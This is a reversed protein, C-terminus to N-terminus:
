YFDSGYLKRSLGTLDAWKMPGGKDAPFGIGWIAGTDISRPDTVIGKELLEKGVEVFPLFLMDRLENVTYDKPKAKAPILPLVEPDVSGDELFFGKGSKKRGLRGAKVVNEITQPARQGLSKTFVFHIVDIGVEDTLRIPGVPFGFGTMAEDIKEIPVGSELIEYTKVFYPFLMANVVFGPYDNCVVPRKKVAACFNLLNNITDEVTEEGRIVELLQMMWVPSFFHAGCFRGPKTVNKALETVPISSTNSAILCDDRVTNCLEKYVEAKLAPDEFVAEIVLDVDKFDDTWESVPKILDCLSDVSGKLRGKDAMGQLVKRIFEQGPGIAEPLDKVVVPVQMRRLIDIIIGRGMTGFGLMAIKKLPKPEFGKSIMGAPKDTYTKLFFTNISGKAEPTNAVDLFYKREIALAEELPAKLGEHISKLVLTHSPLERGRTAKLVTQRALDIISDLDSFDHRTRKLQVKGEILELVFEKARVLLDDKEPVVRDIMGLELAKAPPLTKGKLILEIAQYGILRPLRQTGGGGPFLGVNCEPLGILTRPSDTAMRATMALALEYGGGMCAGNIAALTPIGLNEMRFFDRHLRSIVKDTGESDNPDTITKLNAGAHFNSPKGSIFIIGKIVDKEKELSRITEGFDILAEDTWTNVAEGKVDFTVVALGDEIQYPFISTKQEM